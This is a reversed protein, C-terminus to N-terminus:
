RLMTDLLSNTFVRHPDLTDLARVAWDWDVDSGTRYSEPIRHSLLTESAWRASDTYGWGKSWEVRVVADVGCYRSLLFEELERYFRNSSATGPHTLIDVWVAIDWEPHADHPRAASLAPARAGAVGVDAAVDLGTVRFDAPGNIPYDGRAAYEGLLETYRTAFEYLVQQLNARRTLITYGNAHLRATTPKIYLQLNKSWGWLDASRTTVLGTAVVEYQLQGLTPALFTAGETIQRYLEAMEEPISDSFPYNYPERTERSSEPKVPSVTWVKLWPAETFPFWIADVRGTEEVFGAFTRAGPTGPAAFLEAASIDVTSVCRLRSNVGVRLVAETIFGRGLCTLLASCLREGRRFTRLAYRHRANDWVVATLSVVLNSLSGFTHGESLVEDAAPLSTGHGNIALVGGLTLDGPAPTNTVGLGNDELFQLLNDMSIGTQARVASPSANVVEVATLYTRTDLLVTKASTEGDLVTLPAWGHRFGQARLTYGHVHAWNALLVVDEATRPECTWVADVEIEHAWNRYAQRYVVISSPFGPPPEGGEAAGAYLRGIPILSAGTGLSAALFRRRSWGTDEESADCM